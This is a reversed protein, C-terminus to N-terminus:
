GMPTDLPSDLKREKRRELRGVRDRLETLLEDYRIKDDDKVATRIMELVAGM